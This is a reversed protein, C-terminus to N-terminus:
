EGLRKWNDWEPVDGTTTITRKLGTIRDKSELVIHFSDSTYIYKWWGYVRRKGNVWVAKTYGKDEMSMLLYRM